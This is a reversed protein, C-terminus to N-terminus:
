FATLLEPAMVDHQKFNPPAIQLLKCAAGAVNLNLEAYFGAPPFQIAILTIVL